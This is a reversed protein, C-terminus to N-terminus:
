NFKEFFEIYCYYETNIKKFVKYIVCILLLNLVFLKLINKENKNQLKFLANKKFKGTLIYTIIWNPYKELM